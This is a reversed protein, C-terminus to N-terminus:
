TTPSRWRRYGIQYAQRILEMPSLVGDSLFTHTHFDYLPQEEHETLRNQRCMIVTFPSSSGGTPCKSGNTLGSTMAIPGSRCSLPRGKPLSLAPTLRPRDPLSTPIAATRRNAIPYFKQTSYQRM